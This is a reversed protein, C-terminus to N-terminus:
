ETLLEDGRNGYYGIASASVLVKPKDARSAIAGVLLATSETRSELIRRKQDDTWKRAAISEGALHVVADVGELAAADIRGADPEWSIEDDQTTGDRVLRVVRDGRAQLAHTVARGILGSAGSLVVDM